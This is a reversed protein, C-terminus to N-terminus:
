SNMDININESSTLPQRDKSYVLAFVLRELGKMTRGQHSVSKLTKPHWVYHMDCCFFYNIFNNYFQSDDNSVEMRVVMM